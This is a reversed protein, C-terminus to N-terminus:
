PQNQTAPPLSPAPARGSSVASSTSSSATAFVVDAPPVSHFFSPASDQQWRALVAPVYARTEAPLAGARALASFDTTHARQMASSLNQEGWNYAALALPWSGFQEYIDHLYSAAAMTSRAPDLREDFQDSVVLGYRRATTPMLQWLGRAGKPSLAQPNGHSEIAIVAALNAPLGHQLLIPQVMSAIHHLNPDTTIDSTAVANKVEFPLEEVLQQDPTVPAQLLTEAAQNLRANLATFEVAPQQAQAALSVTAILIALGILRTSFVLLKRM